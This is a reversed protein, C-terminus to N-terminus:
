LGRCYSDPLASFWRTFCGGGCKDWLSCQICNKSPYNGIRRRFNVVSETQWLQDIFDSDFMKDCSDKYPMNIFHNCPLVSFDTDFVIGHGNRIHCGSYVHNSNIIENRRENPIQCLPFSVEITFDLKSNIMLDYLTCLFIGMKEIDMITETEPEIVPKVFQFSFHDLHYKKSIEILKEIESKDDNIIVYSLSPTLGVEKLNTYAEIAKKLGTKGTNKYYGAETVDKLSININNLGAECVQRCFDMDSFAYGNTALASVIKKGHIYQILEILDEYIAPEGGILVIKKIGRIALDDIVKKASELNMVENKKSTKAYCWQCKFQCARNVTLWAVHITAKQM